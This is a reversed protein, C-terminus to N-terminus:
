MHPRVRIAGDSMHLLMAQGADVLLRTFTILTSKTYDYPFFKIYIEVM